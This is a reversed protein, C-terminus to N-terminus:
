LLSVAAYTVSLQAGDVQDGSEPERLPLYDQGSVFSISEIRLIGIQHQFDQNAILLDRLLAMTKVATMDALDAANAREIYFNVVITRLLDLRAAAGGVVEIEISNSVAIEPLVRPYAADIQLLGSFAMCVGALDASFTQELTQPSSNFNVMQPLTSVAGVPTSVAGSKILLALSAM